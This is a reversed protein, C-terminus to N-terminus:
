KPEFLSGVMIMEGGTLENSKLKVVHSQVSAARPTAPLRITELDGPEINQITYFDNRILKGDASLLNVELIAKQFTIHSLTNRVQVVANSIGDANADFRPTSVLYKDIRALIENHNPIATMSDAALPASAAPQDMPIREEAAREEKNIDNGASPDAKTEANGCSALIWVSALILLLKCQKM